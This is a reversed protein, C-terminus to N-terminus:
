DAQLLKAKEDSQQLAMNLYIYVDEPTKDGAKSARKHGLRVMIINKEPIAFIYQGRIGRAYFIDYGNHKMLWWQYGYQWTPEDDKNLLYTAPLISEAVFTSDLITDNNWRGFNMMLKAYRAFDRATAYFCCSVKEMGNPKDLSWYATDEAGIRSWLKEYAFASVTKGTVKKLIIGLLQTDGGKYRFYKGPETEFEPNLVTNNVDSGYYAVAPWSLPSLYSENFHLGSSMTLLHRITIKNFPEKNYTEIYNAVPNDISTIFGEKLAIGILVSTFSKAMSFSNSVDKANYDEFYREFLISDNEIILLATTEFQESKKLLTDNPQITNYYVSITWPIPKQPEIKNFAFYKLEDIDPSLKGSLLTGKIVKYLVFNHSYWLWLKFLTFVTLIIVILKRM